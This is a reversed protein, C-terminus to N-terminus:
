AKIGLKQEIESAHLELLKSIGRDQMTVGYLVDAEEMTGRRHTICIFQTNANMRRLYSAFRYVNVDDLAAEIEDMVCFPSPSVKMIAFYLAIAVLAKEGGSLLEIHSVIKGPPEVSIDIGTTLVNEPDTLSLSAKGGGFLEVFTSSFNENILRFREVFIERMQRTLETILKTLEAKSKEVDGLQDSMFACRESVEKFEEIASVNVNGLSRIKQKLEALRRQARGQDTIEVAAKEAERKTLEYEEWLKGIIEDYQKQLSDRREELRATEGGLNERESTKERELRRLEGARQELCMRERNMQEIQGNLSQVTDKLMTQEQELATIRARIDTNKTQLDTIEQQSRAVTEQSSSQRQRTNTIENQMVAIDKELTLVALRLEQLQESLRERKRAYESRSGSLVQLLDEQRAIEATYRDYASRAEQRADNLEALRKEAEEQEARSERYAREAAELESRRSNQEAEIKIKSENIKALSQRSQEIVEREAMLQKEANQWDAKATEAKKEAAAGQQRLKKIEEARGLLGTNKALSGGTLSGGTNVVQGDLTVVRFRYNYRRAMEAACNLDKAIVIRGLLNYLIGRYGEGCECLSSAIGVFGECSELGAENLEKGKMTTMPLFTARGGNHSKLFAIAQKADSDTETVINQMAAGLATEIAVTYASSTRIVRSVPGHIGTLTGKAAEKMILKVSYAFGELNRELDELLRAKEFLQRSESLMQETKKKLEECTQQTGASAREKEQIEQEQRAYQEACDKLMGNYEEIIGRLTDQQSSKARLANDIGQTRATLEDISTSSTMYRINEESAKRTLATIKETIEDLKETSRSEDTKLSDLTKESKTLESRRVALISEQERLQTEKQQIEQTLSDGSQQIEIISDSIRRVTNENHLIDNHMVSIESKRSSAQEEAAAIRRRLEDIQGGFASQRRFLQESEDLVEKLAKEVETYQAQAASLRDEQERIRVASKDLTELWLAIELGRKEEAYALYAKAKESQIRLPGVRGELEALIDRLRVLNEETKELRREAEAKKYRFRSIGAAEEFIERRDESKTSVISDIKGQGIMSYGDRGLGTDMFLEHIDQLRVNTNNILYESSGSRYFRRTVSVEDGDFPLTRDTNDISLTVQAYGTKKRQQTGNFIVDEMRSCRLSKASQEGLVWRIADSINSKGSGNPGVVATIGNTFNLKTRDPFTKFGQVELGKLKMKKRGSIQIKCYNRGDAKEMEQM